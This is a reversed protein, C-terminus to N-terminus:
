RECPIIREGPGQLMSKITGSVVAANRDIIFEHGEASILKVQLAIRSACIVCSTGRARSHPFVANRWGTAYSAGGTAAAPPVLRACM